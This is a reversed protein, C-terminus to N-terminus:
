GSTRDWKQRARGGVLNFAFVTLFVVLGPALVVHPNLEFQGGNGEAIMNGWSPTPPQVGLGLYSLSAEAVILIAMLILGYSLLQPAVNPFLERLLVRKRSAGMSRAATVFGQEAIAMTNARALRFNVPIALVGLALALNRVNKDMVTALALLLVLPPFALMTNNLVNVVWDFKGKLYGAIMGLSGGVVMGIAVALVGMTLSARAGYAIRALMDLGYNNTGLPHKSFIQPRKLLPEALTKATNKHEGLPLVPALLAFAVLLVLWAVALGWAVDARPRVAHVATRIGVYIAAVGALVLVTRLIMSQERLWTAGAWVAVLGAAIEVVGAFLNGRGRKPPLPAPIGEPVSALNEEVVDVLPVAADDTLEPEM